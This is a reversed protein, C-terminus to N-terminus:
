FNCIFLLKLIIKMWEFQMVNTQCKQNIKKKIVKPLQM